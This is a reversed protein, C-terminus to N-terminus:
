KTQSVKFQRKNKGRYSDTMAHCNPCLLLLNQLRNDRNNGNIHHLELPIPGGLWEELGCSECKNEKIGEKLLRRKLKFSQYSSDVVLVDEIPIAEFPKFKLNVNWGQGKFHGTSIGYKAIANHILKYNGGSPKIGLIRCMAAISSAQKAANEFEEKTRKHAMSIEKPCLYMHSTGFHHVYLFGELFKKWSPNTHEPRSDFGYPCKQGRSKRAVRAKVCAPKM